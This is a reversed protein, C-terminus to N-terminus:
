NFCITDDCRQIEKFQLFLTDDCIALRALKSSFCM